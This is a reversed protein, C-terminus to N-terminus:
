EPLIVQSTNEFVSFILVRAGLELRYRALISKRGSHGFRYGASSLPKLFLWFGGRPRMFRKADLFVQTIEPRPRWVGSGTIGGTLSYAINGILR